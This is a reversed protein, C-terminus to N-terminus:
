LMVQQLVRTLEAITFPKPVVGKFGYKEYESMVPDDAYGSSVVAVVDPDLALLEKVADKGGMGGPVTLDMIVADFGDGHNFAQAYLEIAARGDAAVEVRYGQRGLMARTVDSVAKEDDMILVRGKGRPLSAHTHGISPRGMNGIAPLLLTMTTGLGVTSDVAMHGGHSMIIAHATALGLGSGLSKTTFYPDFIKGLHAEPIGVGHDHIAIRVQPRTAPGGNATAPVNEARVDMVGGEPMAQIANLVLNHVVQMIQNEDADVAWLDDALRFDCKVNSGRLAFSAAERIIDHLFIPKKLPKGGKAFTLLQHTLGKARLCAKEAESLNNRRSVEGGDLQALYINGVIATLINNFDHAIGGALVGLSALKSAREREAELRVADTTDRAVLVVAVVAGEDDRVPTASHEVLRQTGDRAVLAAHSDRDVSTQMRLVKDVPSAYSKGTERDILRFVESVPTGVAKEQPWGTFLEAAPNLIVVRGRTDSAVVADGISGLTVVLREKEIALARESREALDLAQMARANLDSVEAVHRREEEIRGLYVQYTRYTLYAPAAVMLASWTEGRDIFWAAAVAVGAGVFFSPGSWLFADVWVRWPSQRTALASAVAVLAANCVFYAFGSGVIPTALDHPNLMGPHGGLLTYVLNTVQVTIVLASISFLVRYVRVKRERRNVLCQLLAGAGAFLMAQSPGVLILTMFDAIFSVSMTASTKTVPLQVKFGSSILVLVLLGASLAPAPISPPYFAAVLCAGILMVGGVYLKAALPLGPQSADPTPTSGSQRRESTADDSECGPSGDIEVDGPALPAWVDAISDVRRRELSAGLNLPRADGALAVM